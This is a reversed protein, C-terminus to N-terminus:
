KGIRGVGVGYLDGEVCKRLYSTACVGGTYAHRYEPMFGPAEYQGDTM